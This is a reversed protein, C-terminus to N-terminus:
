AQRWYRIARNSLFGAPGVDGHLIWGDEAREMKRVWQLGESRRYDGEPYSIYIGDPTPIM